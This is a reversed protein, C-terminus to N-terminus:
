GALKGNSVDRQAREYDDIRGIDVWYEHIPFSVVPEGLEVLRAILDTMDFRRDGPIEACALPDILYIGANVFFGVEPKERLATVLPGDCEVVGYPVKMGYHRVGMTLCAGHQQHYDLMARYNVTTLVDGNIVLLPTDGELDMRRLAGATGLPENEHSYTVTADFSSGDGFHSQIKDAEYHTTINIRRIGAKGLQEVTRELLPRDGLPLMPKPVGETLPRLRLGLGGAMIVAQLPPEPNRVFRSLLALGAVRGEDDILPVHRVWTEGMLRLLAVPSTGVPATIPAHREAGLAGRFLDAVEAELTLGLLLARRVDGDTVTGILRREDDLVLVVGEGADEIRAIAARLDVSPAVAFRDLDDVEVQAAGDPRAAGPAPLPAPGGRDGFAAFRIAPRSPVTM